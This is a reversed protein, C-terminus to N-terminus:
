GEAARAADTPVGMSEACTLVQRWTREGIPIGGSEAQSRARAETEGPVLIEEFGAARPSSKVFAVLEDVQQQLDALPVFHAVDLVMLFAANGARSGSGSCGAGSLAGALLDVVVGLGYGKYGAAGGFPLLGAPLRGEAASTAMDLVLPSDGARPIGVALPNTGLRAEGGGWPLVSAAGHENACLMGVMGRRAVRDVYPGLRGMHYAHRLSLAAVGTRGAKELGIATARNATTQGYGRHGDLVAVVARDRIVEIEARPDIAGREIAETYQPVRVIGEVGHGAADAEALHTAVERAATPPTGAAMLIRSGLDTLQESTLVPM